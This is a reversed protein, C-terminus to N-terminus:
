EANPYHLRAGAEKRPLNMQRKFKLLDSEAEAIAAADTPADALWTRLLAISPANKQINEELPTLREMVLQHAYEESTMGRRETMERRNEEEATLEIMLSMSEGGPSFRGEKVSWTYDLMRRGHFSIAVERAASSNSETVAIRDGM